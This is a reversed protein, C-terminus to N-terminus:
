GPLGFPDVVSRLWVDFAEVSVRVVRNLVFAEM